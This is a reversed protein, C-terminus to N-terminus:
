LWVLPIPHTNWKLLQNKPWFSSSRTGQSSSFRIVPSLNLGKEIGLKAYSSWCKWMILDTSQKTQRFAGSREGDEMNEKFLYHWEVISKKV